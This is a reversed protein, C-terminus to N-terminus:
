FNIDKELKPFSNDMEESPFFESYKIECEEFKIDLADLIMTDTLGYCYGLLKGNEYAGVNNHIRVINIKRM